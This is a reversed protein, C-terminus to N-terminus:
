KPSRSGVVRVEELADERLFLLVRVVHVVQQDAVFPPRHEIALARTAAGRRERVARRV